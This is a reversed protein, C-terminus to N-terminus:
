QSSINVNQIQNHIENVKKLAASGYWLRLDMMLRGSQIMPDTATLEEAEEITAVDFIYIGRLDGEEMFPGAMLLVGEDAMRQINELHAVQMAAAEEESQNRNPGSKLFAMVYQRMGYEDAGLEKALESNYGEIGHDHAHNHQSHDHHNDQSHDDSSHHEHHDHSCAAFFLLIFLYHIRM